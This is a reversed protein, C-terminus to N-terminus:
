QLTVIKRFMQDYPTINRKEQVYDDAMLTMMLWVMGLIHSEFGLPFLIWKRQTDNSVKNCKLKAVTRKEKDM